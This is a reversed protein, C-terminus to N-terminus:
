QPSLTPPVFPEPDLFRRLVNLTIGAVCNRYQNHNLSFVWAMSGVSFVAGGNGTEFFVMDARPMRYNIRYEEAATGNPMLFPYEFPGSSALVLAHSPSGWEPRYADVEFGAAGGPYLGFDGIRQEEVGEFIFAARPDDADAQRIYPVGRCHLNGDMGIGVVPNPPRNAQWLLGHDCAEFEAVTERQNWYQDAYKDPTARRVELAGALERHYSTVWCYGNGGLYMWRGGGDLYSELADRMHHTYYEPQHGTMVVRYGQLLEVGERNLLDDTIIDVDLGSAQLLDAIYLDAALKSYGSQLQLMLNPHKQSAHRCQSGDPHYRYTGKGLDPHRALFDGDERKTTLCPFLREEVIDTGGDARKVERRRFTTYLLDLNTYATYTATPLLLAANSTPNGKPSAVFFPIHDVFDGHRLRAAYIGSALDEPVQYRFDARWEADYLDDDHFLCAAYGARAHRWDSGMEPTWRVGCVARDPMNIATGHLENSSRDHVLTTGIGESFDWWGVIHAAVEDPPDLGAMRRIEAPGYVGRVLRVSDLKGNLVDVPRLRQGNGPGGTAAGFRLPGQQPVDFEAPLGSERTEPLWAPERSASCTVPEVFLRLKGPEYQASVLFWRNQILPRSSGVSYDSGKGDGVKFTLKGAGDIYLTWGCQTQEDFRSVLTQCVSAQEGHHKVFVGSLKAAGRAHLLSPWLCTQVTFSQLGNLVDSSPIEVYSGPHCSQHRGAYEGNFPSDLEVEKFHSGDNVADGCYIRVLRAVYPEESREGYTSVMFDVRDGPRVTWPWCYGLISREIGTTFERSAPNCASPLGRRNSVKTANM